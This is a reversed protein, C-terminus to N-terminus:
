FKTNQRCSGYYLFFAIGVFVSYGAITSSPNVKTVTLLIMVIIGTLTLVASKKNNGTIQQNKMENGGTCSLVSLASCMM